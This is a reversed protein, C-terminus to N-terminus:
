SGLQGPGLRFWDGSDLDSGRKVSSWVWTVRSGIANFRVTLWTVSIVYFRKQFWDVEVVLWYLVNPHSATRTRGPRRRRMPLSASSHSGAAQFGCATSGAWGQWAPHSMLYIDRFWSSGIRAFSVMLQLGQKLYVSWGPYDLQPSGLNGSVVWLSEPRLDGGTRWLVTTSWFVLEVWDKRLKGHTAIGAKLVCVVWSLGASPFGSKGIGGM